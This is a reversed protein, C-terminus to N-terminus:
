YGMEKKRASDVWLRAFIINRDMDGLETEGNYGVIWPQFAHFHPVRGGWLFWHQINFYMDIPKSARMQEELTQAASMAAHMADYVPDKVQAVNWPSDVVTAYTDMQGVPNWEYGSIFAMFQGSGDQLKAGYAPGDVGELKIEVGIKKWYEVAIQDHELRNQTLGYNMTAKFRTGDAGRPYGAEDLLKEAGEPDYVYYQKIEEPWDEFNTVYGIFGKGLFGQPTLDALGNHFRDFPGDKRLDLAMQMAHRVRVDSFPKKQTNFVWSTESRYSMPELVIEPNTKKLSMVQDMSTLQSYGAPMGLMDVKRSRLLSLRTAPDPVILGKFGDIYPLQNETYKEDVDWYNPNKVWTISSGEVIETIEFPGTGVLNRWDKADGHEKIVEPAYMFNLNLVAAGLFLPDVQKMKFVLTYKDTAKISELKGVNGGWYSSHESFGSGTGTYRHYNYEADFATFERGNVPAKNQWKVGKRIKFVMTLPDPQEWSEALHGTYLTLPKYTTRFAFQDRPTAWDMIGLKELVGAVVTGPHHHFWMDVHNADGVSATAWTITGGYEPAVVMKGTTPDKVMEAALAPGVWLAAAMLTLTLLLSTIKSPMIKKM